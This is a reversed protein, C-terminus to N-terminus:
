KTLRKQMHKWIELFIDNIRSFKPNPNLKLPLEVDVRQQNSRIFNKTKSDKLMSDGRDGVYAWECGCVKCLKNAQKSTIFVKMATLSLELM